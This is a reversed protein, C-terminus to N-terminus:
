EIFVNKKQVCAFCSLQRGLIDAKLGLHFRLPFQNLLEFRINAAKLMQRGQIATFGLYAM